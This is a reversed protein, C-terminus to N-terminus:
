TRKRNKISNWKAKMQLFGLLFVRVHNKQYRNQESFFNKKINEQWVRAYRKM